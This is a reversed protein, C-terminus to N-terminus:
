CSRDVSPPDARRPASARARRLPGSEHGPRGPSATRRTTSSACTSADRGGSSTRRRAEFDTGAPVEPLEDVLEIRAGGIHIRFLGLARRSRLTAAARSCTVRRSRGAGSPPAGAPGGSAPAWPRALDPARVRAGASRSSLTRARDGEARRAPAGAGHAVQRDRRHRARRRRRRRSSSSSRCSSRAAREDLRGVAALLDRARTRPPGPSPAADGPSATEQLLCRERGEGLPTPQPSTPVIRLLWPRFPAGRRFRPLATWAKVFGAQAADEADAASGTLLYATRFAIDQHM